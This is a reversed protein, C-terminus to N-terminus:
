SSFSFPSDVPFVNKNIIIDYGLFKVKRKERTIIDKIFNLTIQQPKDAM